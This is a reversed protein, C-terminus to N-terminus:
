LGVEILQIVEAFGKEKARKLASEKQKEDRFKAGSQLLIPIMKPFGYATAYYLATKYDGDERNPQAGERLLREVIQTHGDRAAVIVPVTGAWKNVDAGNAILFDVMTYDGKEAAVALVTGSPFQTPDDNFAYTAESYCIDNVDAGKELLLQTIEINGWFAALALAPAQQGLTLSPFNYNVRLDTNPNLGSDFMSIIVATDGTKIAEILLQQDEM